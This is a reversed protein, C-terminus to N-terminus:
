GESLQYYYKMGKTTQVILLDNREKASYIKSGIPLITSTYNIFKSPISSQSQIEGILEDQTLTLDDVWDIGTKYVIGDKLFLDSTADNELEEEITPPASSTTKTESQGCAFLFLSIFGLFIVLNIKNM